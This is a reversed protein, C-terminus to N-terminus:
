VVEVVKHFGVLSGHKPDLDTVLYSIANLSCVKMKQVSNLKETISLIATKSSCRIMAKKIQVVEWDSDTVGDEVSLSNTGLLCLDVRIESLQNIVQSGISINTNRSLKGGILIVDANTHEALELAVLPSITFFTCQLSEPVIRALELMTTGGGALVTMGNQILKLAKSAIQKKADRAYVNNEQFPYQFSKSLAGGYVKLVKGNEALENLDRRITDESVNLQVSLDSSLVKNHLNIQHIIFAQREEKLM